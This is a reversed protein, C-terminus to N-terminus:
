VTYTFIPFPSIFDIVEKKVRMIEKENKINKLVRDIFDAIQDMQDPQLGRTTVIPTGLRIGSTVTPKQPDYPILNKNLYINAKELADTAVNGTLNQPRLDVLFCHNDTGGSVIKYGRKILAEALARANEIIRKAYRQFEETMAEKFCVAKACITNEHPGSQIGPFVARDIKEGYKEKSMIIAGRPGRLTKQTTTNVVDFIPVPNEIQKGAILGAIHAIDAMILAGIEDAIEKFRKWDPNRSHASFGALIMKPRYKKALEYVEDMDIYGDDKRTKYWVFKYWRGSFNLPLGHTLHGGHDLGMALVTDGLNLLAYYVALNAPAGSLPQVNVHEAGFLKKAREIALSETEDVFCNGAYYRKKPLGESYKNVFSTALAELVAPSVNNESAILEIGDKQRKDEKEIISFVEPDIEKVLERKPYAYYEKKMM